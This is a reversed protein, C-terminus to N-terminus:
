SLNFKQSLIDLLKDVSNEPPLERFSIHPSLLEMIKGRSVQTSNEPLLIFLRPPFRLATNIHLVPYHARETFWFDKLDKWLYDHGGSVLGHSTIKHTVTEPPVTRLVYSVFALSLFVAYLLFEKFFVLIVGVALLVWLVTRVYKEDKPVFVRAPSEWELLVETPFNEPPPQNAASEPM